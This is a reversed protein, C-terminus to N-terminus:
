LIWEWTRVEHQVGGLNVQNSTLRGSKESGAKGKKSPM